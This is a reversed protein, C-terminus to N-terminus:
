PNIILSETSECSNLWESLNMTNNYRKTSTSGYVQVFDYEDKNLKKLEFMYENILKTNMDVDKNNEKLIYGEQYERKLFSYRVLEHISFYEDIIIDVKDPQDVSKKPIIVGTKEFEKQHLEAVYDLYRRGNHITVHKYLLDYLFMIYKHKDIAVELIEYLMKLHYMRTKDPFNESVKQLMEDVIENINQSKILNM